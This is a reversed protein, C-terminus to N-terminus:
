SSTGKPKDRGILQLTILREDKELPLALRKILLEIVQDISQKERKSKEYEEESYLPIWEDKKNM